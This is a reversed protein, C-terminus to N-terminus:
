KWNIRILIDEAVLILGHQLPLWLFVSPTKEYAEHLPNETAVVKRLRLDEQAQLLESVGGTDILFM